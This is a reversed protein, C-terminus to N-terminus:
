GTLGSRIDDALLADREEITLTRVRSGAADDRTVHMVTDVYEAVHRLHSILVVMKGSGTVGSSSRTVKGLTELATDLANADLSGFGEDVFVADLRGGGRSAIEVLALALALSAQFREGGSLSDPSRIEGSAINKVGFDAVFGFRNGSITRLRRGAEALLEAERLSLLHDVFQNDRLAEALVELNDAFPVVVNLVKDVEDTATVAARAQKVREEANTMAQTAEGLRGFLTDVTDCDVEALSKSVITEATVAADQAAGTVQEAEAVQATVASFRAQATAITATLREALDHLDPVQDASDVLDPLQDLRTLTEVLGVQAAGLQPIDVQASGLPASSDPLQDLRQDLRTLTDAPASEVSLGVLRQVFRDVVEGPRADRAAVVVEVTRDRVERIRSLHSNVAGVFAKVPGTVQEAVEARVRERTAEAQRITQDAEARDRDLSTITSLSEECRSTLHELTAPTIDGTPRWAEPLDAVLKVSRKDVEQMARQVMNDSQKVREAHQERAQSLAGEAKALRERASDLVTRAETASTRLDEAAVALSAVALDGNTADTDGNLEFEGGLEIDGGLEALTEGLSTISLLHQHHDAKAATAQTSLRVIREGVSREDSAAEEVAARADEVAKAAAAVGSSDPATFTDPLKQACVPCDDGPGYDAAIAAVADVRRAQECVQEAVALAKKADTYATVCRQQDTVASALREDAEAVTSAFRDLEQQAAHLREAVTRAQRLREDAAEASAAKETADRDAVSVAQRIDEDVEDSPAAEDLAARDALAEDLRNKARPLEETSVRIRERAELLQDRDAFGALMKTARVSITQQVARAEGAATEVAAVREGLTQASRQCERLSAVPDDELVPVAAVAATLMSLPVGVKSNFDRPAEVATVAAELRDRQDRAEHSATEAEVLAARPDDPLGRRREEFRTRVNRISARLELFKSAVDAINALGLLSKLLKNRESETSRLLEDFRGQPMVVARTFQEFTLGGLLETVQDRVAAAGDVTPVHGTVSELKDVPSAGSRRRSRTVKWTHGDAEFVLEITLLDCGDAILDQHSGSKWIKRAYLVFCLADIITSKGAGTDGIVAYLDQDDFNISATTRYSRLGSFTLTRPRM